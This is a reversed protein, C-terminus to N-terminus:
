SLLQKSYAELKKSLLRRENSNLGRENAVIDMYYGTLGSFSSTPHISLWHEADDDAFARQVIEIITEDNDERAWQIVRDFLVAEKEKRYEARKIMFVAGQMPAGGRQEVQKYSYIERNKGPKTSM